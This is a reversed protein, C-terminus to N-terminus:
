ARRHRDNGPRPIQGSLEDASRLGDPFVELFTKIIVRLVPEDLQYLPLWQCFLGGTNLRDRVTQFHERTYLMGGGDRGPHFLDAVIVDYRDRTARVFRRADATYVTTRADNRMAADPSEFQSLVEVVEPVLEVGDAVLGPHYRTAQFTIGTGLGLFLARRPAPHLLLPLHGQRLEWGRTATSGMTFHNNVRLNKSGTPTAVVAVAATVGERYDIVRENGETKVLRLNGPMVLMLLVPAAMGVWPAQNFHPTLPLYGLAVAVLTWKVGIAPMLVVGVLLPAVFGGLTNVAMARGVGGEARRAAQVLHSFTAGMLITPLLFVAAAVAMESVMVAAISYDLRSRFLTYLEETGSLALGGLMCTTALGSLLYALLKDFDVPLWFRQYLWAGLATGILYVSLVAAYSYVTNELVQSIARLGVIEYGIGLLGTFFLVLLVEQQANSHRTTGEAATPTSTTLMTGTGRLLPWIAVVCVLNVVALTMLSASYGWAPIIVFASLLTGAVAGATNAAYLGGVVRGHATRPALFREMAPLTAGMATTAPLLVVLPLGFSVLWQWIPSPAVGIWQGALVNAIPILMLSLFGWTGIILELAVYWHGPKGSRSIPGDLLWSGLALGAFFAAVVALVSPMEHGLGVAFMRTWAMQYGLGAAGSLFFIAYLLGNKQQEKM